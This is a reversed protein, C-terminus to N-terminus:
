PTGHSGCCAPSESPAKRQRRRNCPPPCCLFVPACQSPLLPSMPILSGGGFAAFLMQSVFVEYKNCPDFQPSRLSAPYRRWHATIDSLVIHRPVGIGGVQRGISKGSGGEDEYARSDTLSLRILAFFRHWRFPPPWRSTTTLVRQSECDVCALADPM